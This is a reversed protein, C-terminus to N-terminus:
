IQGSTCCPAHLRSNQDDELPLTARNVLTENIPRKWQHSDDEGMPLM